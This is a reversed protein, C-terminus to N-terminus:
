CRWALAVLYEALRGRMANSMLDSASWQWFTLMSAPLPQGHAHLPEDGTKRALPLQDLPEMALLTCAEDFWVVCVPPCRRPYLAVLDAGGIAGHLMLCLLVLPAHLVV